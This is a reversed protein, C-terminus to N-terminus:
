EGMLSGDKGLFFFDFDLSRATGERGGEVLGCMVDKLVFRVFGGVGPSM